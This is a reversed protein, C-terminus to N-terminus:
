QRDAYISDKLIEDLDAMGEISTLIEKFAEQNSRIDATISNDKLFKVIHGIETPTIEKSKLREKFHNLLLEYLISCEKERDIMNNKNGGM